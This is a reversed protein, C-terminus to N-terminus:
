VHLASSGFVRRVIALERAASGGRKVADALWGLSGLRASFLTREAFEADLALFEFGDGGGAQRPFRFVVHEDVLYTEHEWGDGMREITAVALDPFQERVVERVMDATLERDCPPPEYFGVAATM